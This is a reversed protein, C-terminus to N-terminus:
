NFAGGWEEEDDDLAMEEGDESAEVEAKTKEWPAAVEPPPKDCKNLV